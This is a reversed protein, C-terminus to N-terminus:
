PPGIILNWQGELDSERPIGLGKTLNGLSSLRIHPESGGCTPSGRQYLQEGTEPNGGQHTHSKIKNPNHGERQRPKKTKPHPYRKKTHELTRRNITTSCSTAIKTSKCSSILARGEVGGDQVPVGSKKKLFLEEYVM